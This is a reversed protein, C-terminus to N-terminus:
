VQKQRAYEEGRVRAVQQRFTTGGRTLRYHGRTAEVEFQLGRRHLRQVFNLFARPQRLGRSAVMVAQVRGEPMIEASLFRISQKGAERVERIVKLAVPEHFRITRMQSRGRPSARFLDYAEQEFELSLESLYAEITPRDGTLCKSFIFYGFGM